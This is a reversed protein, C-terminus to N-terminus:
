WIELNQQLLFDYTLWITFWYNRWCRLFNKPVEKRFDIKYRLQTLRTFYFTWTFIYKTDRLFMFLSFLLHCCFHTNEQQPSSKWFVKHTVNEGWKRSLQPPISYIMENNCKWPQHCEFFITSCHNVYKM